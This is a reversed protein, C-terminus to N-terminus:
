GTNENQRYPFRSAAKTTVVRRPITMCTAMRPSTHPDCVPNQQFLGRRDLNVWRAADLKASRKVGEDRALARSGEDQTPACAGYRLIPFGMEGTSAFKARRYAVEGSSLTLCLSPSRLVFPPNRVVLKRRLVILSFEAKNEDILAQQWHPIASKPYCEDLNKPSTTRSAM